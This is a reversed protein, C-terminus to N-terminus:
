TLCYHVPRFKLISICSQWRTFVEQCKLLLPIDKLIKLFLRFTVVLIVEFLTIPLLCNQFVTMSIAWITMIYDYIYGKM